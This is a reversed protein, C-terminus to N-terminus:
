GNMDGKKTEIMVEFLEEPFQTMWIMMVSLAKPLTQYDFYGGNFPNLLRWCEQGDVTMRTIYYKIIRKRPM